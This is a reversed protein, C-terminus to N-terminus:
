LSFIDYIINLLPAHGPLITNDNLGHFIWIRDNFPHDKWWDDILGSSAYTKTVDVLTEIDINGFKRICDWINIFAKNRICYYPVTVVYM